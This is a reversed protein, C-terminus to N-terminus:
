NVGSKKVKWLILHFLHQSLKTIHERSVIRTRYTSYQVRGGDRIGEKGGRGGRGRVREGERGEEMGREGVREIGVEQVTM